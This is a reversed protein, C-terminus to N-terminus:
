YSENDQRRIKYSYGTSKDVPDVEPVM